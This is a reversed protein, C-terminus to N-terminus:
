GVLQLELTLITRGEGAPLSVLEFLLLFGGGCGTLSHGTGIFSCDTLCWENLRYTGDEMALNQNLNICNEKTFFDYLVHAKSEVSCAKILYMRIISADIHDDVCSAKPYSCSSNSLYSSQLVM